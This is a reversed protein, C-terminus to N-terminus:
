LWQARRYGPLTSARDLRVHHIHAPRRNSCVVPNPLWSNRFGFDHGRNAICIRCGHRFTGFIPSTDQSYGQLPSGLSTSSSLLLAVYGRPCLLCRNPLGNELHFSFSGVDLSWFISGHSSIVQCDRTLQQNLPLRRLSYTGFRPCSLLLTVSCCSNRAIGSSVCHRYRTRRAM